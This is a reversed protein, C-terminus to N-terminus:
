SALVNLNNLCSSARPCEALRYEDIGTPAHWAILIMTGVSWTLRKQLV